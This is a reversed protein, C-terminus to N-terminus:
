FSDPNGVGNVGMGGFMAASLQNGSSGVLDAFM